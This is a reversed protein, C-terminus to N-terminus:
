SWPDKEPEIGALVDRSVYSPYPEFPEEITKMKLVLAQGEPASAIWRLIRALLKKRNYYTYEINWDALYADVLEKCHTTLEDREQFEEVMPTEDTDDLVLQQPHEGLDAVITERRVTDLETDTVITERRIDADETEAEQIAGDDGAEVRENPSEEPPTTLTTAVAVVCSVSAEMDRLATVADPNSIPGPQAVLWLDLDRLFTTFKVLRTGDHAGAVAPPAAPEVPGAPEAGSARLVDTLHEGFTTAVTLLDLAPQEADTAVDWNCRAALFDCLKRVDGSAKTLQQTLPDQSM